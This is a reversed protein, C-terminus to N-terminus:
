TCVQAKGLKEPKQEHNLLTLQTLTDHGDLGLGIIDQGLPIYRLGMGMKKKTEKVLKKAQLLDRVSGAIGFRYSIDGDKYLGMENKEREEEDILKKKPLQQQQQGGSGSGDENVAFLGEQVLAQGDMSSYSLCRLKDDLAQGVANELSGMESQLYQLMGAKKENKRRNEILNGGSSEPSGNYGNGGSNSNEKGNNSHLDVSSTRSLDVSSSRSLSSSSQRLLKDHLKTLGELRERIAFLKVEKDLATDKDAGADVAAASNRAQDFLAGLSASSSTQLLTKKGENKNNATPNVIAMIEVSESEVHALAEELSRIDETLQLKDQESVKSLDKVDLKKSLYELAVKGDIRVNNNNGVLIGSKLLILDSSNNPLPAGTKLCDLLQEMERIAKKSLTEPLHNELFATFTGCGITKKGGKGKCLAGLDILIKQM